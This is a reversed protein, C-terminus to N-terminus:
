EKYIGMKELDDAIYKLGLAELTERKPAGTKRDQGRLDYWADKLEEFKAMDVAKGKHPGDQLPLEVFHRPPVDDKRRIGNKALYAREVNYERECAEHLREDSFDVGTLASLLEAMRSVGGAGPPMLEWETIFKCVELSDAATCLHERNRVFEAM